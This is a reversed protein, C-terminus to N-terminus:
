SFNFFFYNNVLCIKILICIFGIYYFNIISIWNNFFNGNPVLPFFNVILGISIVLFCNKM